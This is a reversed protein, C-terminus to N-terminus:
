YLTKTLDKNVIENNSVEVKSAIIIDKKNSCNKCIIKGVLYYDGSPVGFFAFEGNDNSTTFRLYEFLRDDAKQMKQGEIYSKKYWDNSYSTIPNLYLRSNKGLIEDGYDDIIYIRGQVTSKGNLSLKQYEKQPFPVRKTLDEEIYSSSNEDENENYIQVKERNIEEEIDDTKIDDIHTINEWSSDQYPKIIYPEEKPQTICGVLLLSISLVIIEKLKLM